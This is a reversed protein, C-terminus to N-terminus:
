LSFAGSLGPCGEKGQETRVWKGRPQSQVDQGQFGSIGWPAPVHSQRKRKSVRFSSGTKPLLTPAFRGTPLVPPSPHNRTPKARGEMRGWCWSIKKKEGPQILPNKKEIQTCPSSCNVAWLSILKGQGLLAPSALGSGVHYAASAKEQRELSWM